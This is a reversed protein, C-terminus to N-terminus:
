NDDHERAYVRRIEPDLGARVIVNGRAQPAEVRVKGGLGSLRGGRGSDSGHNASLPVRLLNAVASGLRM